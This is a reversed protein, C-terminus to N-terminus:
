KQVKDRAMAQRLVFRTQQIPSRENVEGEKVIWEYIEPLDDLHLYIRKEPIKSLNKKGHEKHCDECKGTNRGSKDIKSEKQGCMKCLTPTSLLTLGREPDSEGALVREVFTEADARSTFIIDVANAKLVQDDVVLVYGNGRTRILYPKGQKEKLVKSAEMREESEPQIEPALAVPTALKIPRGGRKEAATKITFGLRDRMEVKLEKLLDKFRARVEKGMECSLCARKYQNSLDASKKGREQNILCQRGHMECSFHKCFIYAPGLIEKPSLEAM